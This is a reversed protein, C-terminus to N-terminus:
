DKRMNEMKFFEHDDKNKAQHRQIEGELVELKRSLTRENDAYKQKDREADKLLQDLDQQLDEVKKYRQARLDMAEIVQKM